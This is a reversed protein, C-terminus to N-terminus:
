FQCNSGISYGFGNGEFEDAGDKDSLNNM